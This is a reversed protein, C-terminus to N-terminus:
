PALKIAQANTKTLFYGGGNTEDLLVAGCGTVKSEGSGISVKLLGTKPNISGSLPMPGSVEGLKFNNSITVTFNMLANTDNITDLISLNTLLDIIAPPNTWPSLLIQNALLVNTFGNQYLGTACEPHIWTLGVGATNTLELNIWGLLLGQNGYLNAFVPIYGDQSVPATQNFATGDALAGTITAKGLHNTLLIYGDGSPSHTPATNTNPPLLMTFEAPPLTNAALDAMLNTAMWLVGNNTGSVAGEVEPAANGPAFVTLELLLSGGQAAGRPILKTAQGAVDFNGSFAHTGGNILLTGSYAGKQTIALNKLMGATQETVGNTTYFLGNYTGKFALFPNTIFNAELVMSPEMTFTLPNNTSNISGTWNSFVSGSGAVARITYKTNEVLLKGNLDAPTVKGSGSTLITLALTGNAGYGSVPITDGGSTADSNVTVTGEYNTAATPSFTVTVNTSGGPAITNSFVVSYGTPYGINSVILPLNGSNSITLTSNSSSGIAVGGFALDGSLSIISATVLGSVPFTFPANNTDNNTMSINGSILGITATDLQVTFTGNSGGAIASPYNTYLTYGPPVAISTLDLTLDGTNTITFTVAPGVQMQSVSGFSVANTQGNTIANTGSWVQIEPPRPTVIGTVAFVFLGNIPDNNTITINGSRTAVAGTNLQVSFTGNSGAAIASPYNTNLTYGSPVTIAELGLPLGGSNTVTFTVAPGTQGHQVSGFNVPTTQGNTIVSAGNFVQIQPPRPTVSGTIAFVFPNNTAVNNSITINGSNTAVTGTDLQVSFMANSGAAITSPFNTNLLYGSPVMIAELDLALGGSNTVTFTVTTGTLGQQVSGFNVATTQGNTIVAAGNFVQIQPPRPTVIGTVAFVFLGNVPDNNTMIINGSFAGVTSTDLQVSFTGNSGAAIAPAFNTNLIFGAPVAIGTLELEQGGSNTVTFTVTTGTLGQQVSGFNVPATQGNTIANTGNWVQIQPPPPTVTGTVAFVFLGNVPDNNTMIINGSFAGVTSTDLQVSFTGSSGPDIASPFSPNLIFGSPATINTLDLEALGSNTVTFTVTTGTVLVQVSGFNAPTTQGNTIVSAGNFVQIQPAPATVAGTVAFVFPENNTDNNTITINGSNAAIVATDLQVSFTGNSGAAIAPAFNPNLIFGAPVAIGTLELEAGGSNTVTFTVMPGTQGQQVSGFNVPASQGNSIANTGNFVQIQPTPPTVTGTVAFSFTGNFPDDSTISVNGSEAGAAGTDLQVSFAGSSGPAIAFPFGPIVIFGSPASIGELNLTQAGSNTVTFTVSTGPRGQQVGGFNVPTTQGNVIATAGNFVGIQPIAEFNAFVTENSNLTFSYSPSSYVVAGGVTWNSFLFGSNPTANVTVNTGAPFTGGGTVMGGNTPAAIVTLTLEPPAIYIALTQNTSNGNNDNLQVTFTYTGPSSPIGSIEGSGGGFNLNPPFDQPDQVFWNYMGSCTSGSLFQDYNSGVQGDPLNTTLIQVLPGSCPLVDFYATGDNNGITVGQSAPCQFGGGLIDDLSDNGGSCNLSVSWSGNGVQISYNGNADTDVYPNFEVGNNSAFASVGVGPIPGSGNTVSGTITSPAFLATFQVNLAQGININTGGNQDFDPQSYIYSSASKGSSISIQWTDNSLGGVAATFYNGNVDTYGDGEYNTDDYASVDLGSIPNGLTDQVNGYFLATAKPLAFTVGTQGASVNINNNFSLYGSAIVSTNNPSVKWQVPSSLVGVTFNGSTDTFTMGVLGSDTSAPLFLGPLGVSTISDVVRGSIGTTAPVLTLNTTITAGIGLTLVPATSFSGVYNSQFPVPMYTGAPAAISYNGFVDAVMGGIPTGPGNHGPSPPGFLLVIAYPVPMGSGSTVVTGTVKQAYNSNTIQFTKTQSSFHGAPSSLKFIYQGVTNQIFDGSQFNLQATIQGNATGDTDGPVNSNVIGGIKMGVQGDTLSFQQVLYDGADIVGDANVDLYKQVLVTDGPTLGTVQFTIAGNYTNGAVLPSVNFNVALATQSLLWMLPLVALAHGLRSSGNRRSSHCSQQISLPNANVM